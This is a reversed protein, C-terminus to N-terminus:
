CSDSDHQQSPKVGRRYHIQFTGLKWLGDRLFGPQVEERRNGRGTLVLTLTM